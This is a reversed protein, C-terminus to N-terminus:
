GDVTERSRGRGVDMSAAVLCVVARSPVQAILRLSSLYDGELICPARVVSLLLWEMLASGGKVEDGTGSAIRRALAMSRGPWQLSSSDHGSDRLTQARVEVLRRCSAQPHTCRDSRHKKTRVLIVKKVM